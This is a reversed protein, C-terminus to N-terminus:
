VFLNTPFTSSGTFYFVLYATRTLSHSRQRLHAYVVDIASGRQNMVEICPQAATFTIAAM